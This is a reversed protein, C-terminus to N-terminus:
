DRAADVRSDESLSDCSKINDIPVILPSMVGDVQVVAYHDRKEGSDSMFVIRGSLELCKTIKDIVQEFDPCVVDRLNFNIVTGTAYERFYM